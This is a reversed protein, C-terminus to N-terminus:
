ATSALSISPQALYQRMASRIIGTKAEFWSIGTNLRHVELRVFARIALGIHNRQAVELRHQAREVGTFQKLGRHYVEIQWAELAYCAAEELTLTLRSTAWYAKDGNIGVTRLVKIWSYGKLHVQRGHRPIFIDRIARQGSRAISVERNAKLQTLWAWEQRRLLKLKPLGSYWSDFEVLEPAFGRAKAQQVLHQFYDNKTLGDHAKNYLRFDCPLRCAAQTWVRSILNLGQVVRGHKGAIDITANRIVGAATCFGFATACEVNSIYVDEILYGTSWDDPNGMYDQNVDNLDTAGCVHLGGASCWPDDNVNCEPLWSGWNDDLGNEIGDAGFCVRNARNGDIHLHSITLNDVLGMQGGLQSRAIARVVFGHLDNTVQLLAQAPPDTATFTLNSKAETMVLFVTKDIQYGQYGPTGTDSTFLVTDGPCALNECRQIADSDPDADYPNAGCSDVRIETPKSQLLTATIRRITDAGDHNDTLRFDGGQTDNRFQAACLNFVAVQFEGTGGKTHLATSKFNEDPADYQLGFQDTGDDYYEVEIRIRDTQNADFLFNDDVDFKMYFDAVDNGDLSPLVTGNGSRRAKVPPSGVLVVETDVDGGDHQVIGAEINQSALQITAQSLNKSVSPVYSFFEDQPIANTQSPNQFPFLLALLLTGTLLLVPLIRKM